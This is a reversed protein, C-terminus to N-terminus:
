SLHHARPETVTKTQLLLHLFIYFCRITVEPWWFHLYASLGLHVCVYEVGCEYVVCICMVSLSLLFLYIMIFIRKLSLLSSLFKNYFIWYLLHILLLIMKHDLPSGKINTLEVIDPDHRLWSRSSHSIGFPLHFYFNISILQFQPLLYSSPLQACSLLPMHSCECDATYACQTHCLPSPWHWQCCSSLSVLSYQVGWTCVGLICLM